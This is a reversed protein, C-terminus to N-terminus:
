FRYGPSCETCDNEGHLLFHGDCEGKFFSLAILTRACCPVGHYHITIRRAREGLAGGM